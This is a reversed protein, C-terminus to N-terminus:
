GALRSRRALADEAAEAIQDRQWTPAWGYPGLAKRVHHDVDRDDTEAISEINAIMGEIISELRDPPICTEPPEVCQWFYCGLFHFGDRADVIRFPKFESSGLPCGTLYQALEEGASVAIEREGGAVVFDDAYGGLWVSASVSDSVNGILAVVIAASAPGGAMVGTPDASCLGAVMHDPLDCQRHSRRFTLHRADICSRILEDPLINMVYLSDLRVSEYCHRIDIIFAHPGATQLAAGIDAVCRHIGRGPWDYLCTDPRVQAAILDKGIRQGLRVKTPPSCIRRVGGSRKEKPWWTVPQTCPTLVNIRDALRSINADSKHRLHKMRRLHAAKVGPSTSYRHVERRLLADREPSPPLAATQAIRRQLKRQYSAAAAM